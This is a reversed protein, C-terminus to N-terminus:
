QGAERTQKESDATLIKVARFCYDGASYVTILVTAVMAGWTLMPMWTSFLSTQTLPYMAQMSLGFLSAGIAVCQIGFKLKGWIGASFDGGSSEVMGRVSSILMERCVVV